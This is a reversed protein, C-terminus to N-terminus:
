LFRYRDSQKAFLQLKGPFVELFLILFFKKKITKKLRQTYRIDVEFFRMNVTLFGTLIVCGCLSKESRSVSPPLPRIAKRIGAAQQLVFIFFLNKKPDIKQAQRVQPYRTDVDFLVYKCDFFGTLIM